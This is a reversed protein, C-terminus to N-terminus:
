GDVTIDAGDPPSKIVITSPEAAAPPTVAEPSPETNAVRPAFRAPDLSTDGNIYATLETGEPHHHRKWAHVLFAACGPFVSHEPRRNRRGNGRGAAAM